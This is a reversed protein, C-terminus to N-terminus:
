KRDYLSMAGAPVEFVVSEVFDADAIGGCPKYAYQYSFVLKNGPNISYNFFAGNTATDIKRQNFISYSYSDPNCNNDKSHSCSLLCLVVILVPLFKMNKRESLRNDIVTANVSIGSYERV